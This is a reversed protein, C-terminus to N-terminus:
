LSLFLHYPMHSATYMHTALQIALYMRQFLYVHLLTDHCQAFPPFPTNKRRQQSSYTPLTPIVSNKKEVKSKHDEQPKRIKRWKQRCVEYM